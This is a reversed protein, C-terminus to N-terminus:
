GKLQQRAEWWQPLGPNILKWGVGHYSPKRLEIAAALATVALSIGATAPWGPFDQVITTAALAVFVASWLLELPRALRLVNCFVFFHGLVFGGVFGWWWVCTYLWVSAATGSALVIVDLVSLRFGPAFTNGTM